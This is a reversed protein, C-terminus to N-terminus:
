RTRKIERVRIPLSSGTEKFDVGCNECNTKSDLTFLQPIVAFAAFLSTAAMSYNFKEGFALVVIATLFAFPLSDFSLLIVKYRSLGSRTHCNPCSDCM